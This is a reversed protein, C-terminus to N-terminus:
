GSTVNLGVSHFMLCQVAHDRIEQCGTNFCERCYAGVEREELEVHDLMAGVLDAHESAAKDHACVPSTVNLTVNLTVDKHAPEFLCVFVKSLVHILESRLDGFVEVPLQEVGGDIQVM